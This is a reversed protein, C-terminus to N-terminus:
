AALLQLEKGVNQSMGDTGGELTLFVQNREEQIRSGQLHSRSTTGFRRYPIVVVRQTIAWSLVM